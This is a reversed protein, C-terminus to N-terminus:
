GRNIKWWRRMIGYTFRYRRHGTSTDRLLYNDDLLIELTSRVEDDDEVIMQSRVYDLVDEEPVFDEKGSLMKLIASARRNAGLRKYYTEIREAANRFWEIERNDMMARLEVDVDDPSVQQRKSEQFRECVYQIYIPLGDTLQLMREDFEGPCDRRIGEEDLYKRCMLQVDEITM